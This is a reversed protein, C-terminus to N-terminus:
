HRFQSSRRNYLQSELPKPGSANDMTQISVKTPKHLEFALLEILGCATLSNFGASRLLPKPGYQSTIDYHQFLPKAGLKEILFISPFNPDSGM